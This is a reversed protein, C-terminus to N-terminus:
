RGDSDKECNYACFEEFLIAHSVVDLVESYKPSSELETRQSGWFVPVCGKVIAVASDTDTGSGDVHKSATQPTTLPM